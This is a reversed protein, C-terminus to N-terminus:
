HHLLQLEPAGRSSAYPRLVMNAARTSIVFFQDKVHATRLVMLKWM